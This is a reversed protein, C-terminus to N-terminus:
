KKERLGAERARQRYLAARENSTMDYLRKTQRDREEARRELDLVDEKVTDVDKKVGSWLNRAYPYWFKITLLAVILIACVVFIADLFIPGKM